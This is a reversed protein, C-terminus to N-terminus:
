WIHPQVQPQTSLTRLFPEQPVYGNSDIHPGLQDWLDDHQVAPDFNPIDYMHNMRQLLVRSEASNVLGPRSIVNPPAVNLASQWRNVPQEGSKQLLIYAMM